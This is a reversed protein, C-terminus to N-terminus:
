KNKNNEKEMNECHQQYDLVYNCYQATTIVLISIPPTSFATSYRNLVKTFDNRTIKKEETGQKSQKGSVFLKYKNRELKYLAIFRNIIKEANEGNEKMKPLDYGFSYLQEILADAPHVNIMKLLNEIRTIRSEFKLSKRIDAMQSMMEKGGILETYQQFLDQWVEILESESPEGNIVLNIYKQDCLCDIFIILPLEHISRYLKLPTLAEIKPMKTGHQFINKIRAILGFRM